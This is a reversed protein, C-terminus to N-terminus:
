IVISITVTLYVNMMTIRINKMNLVIHIMLTSCNMVFKKGLELAIMMIHPVHPIDVQCLATGVQNLPAILPLAVMIAKGSEMHM